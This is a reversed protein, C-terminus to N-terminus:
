RNKWLWPVLCRLCVSAYHLCAVPLGKHKLDLHFTEKPPMGNPRNMARWRQLLPVEPNCWKDITEHADCEGLIEGAQYMKIGAEKARMGYDFDGKSHTFYYDLNGLARYASQPILVINGNFYDVERLTGDPQPIMGGSLRGGYTICTHACDETAGVIIAQEETEAAAEVLANLMNGYVFTDDNLWLYFDYDKAKAATDWATWMGRNWFLDGKSHIINVEPFREAVAEPTGDTCGDDTLWVDVQCGDTPLQGYLRELCMLTKDKRNFVTLLVAITKM